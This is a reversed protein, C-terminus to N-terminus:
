FKPKIPRPTRQASSTQSRARRAPSYGQCPRDCRDGLWQGRRWRATTVTGVTLGESETVKLEWVVVKPNLVLRSRVILFISFALRSYVQGRRRPPRERSRSVRYAEARNYCPTLSFQLIYVAYFLPLPGRLIVPESFLPYVTNYNM